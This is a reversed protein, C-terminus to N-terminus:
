SLNMTIDLVVVRMTPRTMKEKMQSRRTKVLLGRWIEKRLQDEDKM